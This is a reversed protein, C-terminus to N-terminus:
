KNEQAYSDYPKSELKLTKARVQKALFEPRLKIRESQLTRYLERRLGESEHSDFLKKTQENIEATITKINNITKSDYSDTMSTLVEKELMEFYAIITYYEPRSFLSVYRIIMKNVQRDEGVLMDEIKKQFHSTIPDLQFGALVACERKRTSYDAWINSIVNNNFDFLLVIFTVVKKYMPNGPHKKYDAFERHDALSNLEKTSTPNILFPGFDIDSLKM